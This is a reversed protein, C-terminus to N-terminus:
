KRVADKHHPARQIRMVSKWMIEIGMQTRDRHLLGRAEIDERVWGTEEWVCAGFYTSM